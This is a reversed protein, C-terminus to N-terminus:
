FAPQAMAQRWIAGLTTMWVGNADRAAIVWELPAERRDDASDQMDMQRSVILAIDNLEQLHPDRWLPQGGRACM